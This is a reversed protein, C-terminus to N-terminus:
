KKKSTFLSAGQAAGSGVEGLITAGLAMTSPKSAKAALANQAAISAGFGYDAAKTRHAAAARAGAYRADQIKLEEDAATQGLIALPSGSTIAAGSKGLAALQASRLREAEQRQRRANEANEAELAAAEREEMRQNYEMQRQQLRANEEASKAQQKAQKHSEVGGIIGGTVSTAIGILGIISATLGTAM